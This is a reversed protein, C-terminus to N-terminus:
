EASQPVGERNGQPLFRIRTLELTNRTVRPIPSM